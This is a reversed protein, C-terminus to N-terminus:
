KPLGSSRPALRETPLELRASAGRDQVDAHGPCPSDPDHRSFRAAPRGGRLVPLRRGPEAAAGQDADTRWWCLAPRGDRIRELIRPTYRIIDFQSRPLHRVDEGDR